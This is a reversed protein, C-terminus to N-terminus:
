NQPSAAPVPAAGTAPATANASPTSHSGSWGAGRNRPRIHLWHHGNADKTWWSYTHAGVIVERAFATGFIVSVSTIFILMKKMRQDEGKSM